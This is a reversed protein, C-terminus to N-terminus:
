KKKGYIIWYKKFYYWPNRICKKIEEKWWQDYSKQIELLTKASIGYEKEVAQALEEDIPIKKELVGVFVSMRVGTRRYFDIPSDMRAELEDSLIEGPHVPLFPRIEKGKSDYVPM